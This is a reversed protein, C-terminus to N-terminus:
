PSFPYRDSLRLTVRRYYGKPSGRQASTKVKRVCGPYYWTCRPTGGVMVRTGSHAENHVEGMPLLCTHAENYDTEWLHSPLIRMTTGDCVPLSPPMHVTTDTVCLFSPSSEACCAERLPIYVPYGGM